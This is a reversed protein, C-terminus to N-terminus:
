RTSMVDEVDGPGHTEAMRDLAASRRRRRDALFGEVADRPIRRHTGPREFPLVGDDLMKVVTPRSVRLLVAAEQTSLMEEAVVLEVHKGVSLADLAEAFFAVASEPVEVDGVM